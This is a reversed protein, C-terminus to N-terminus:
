EKSYTKVEYFVAAPLHDSLIQFRSQKSIAFGKQSSIKADYPEPTNQTINNFRKANATFASM